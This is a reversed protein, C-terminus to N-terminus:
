VRRFRRVALPVAVLLLGLSWALAYLASRGPNGTGEMLERTANVVNTVPQADAFARLWGPMTATSTFTSAAFVLPFVPLFSALQAAEPNAVLMGIYAFIWSFAYGFLLAVGVGAVSPLFGGHFRFGVLLGVLIMLTLTFCSRILDATTRGTLIAGRHMPLSRFRDTIGKSLDDAVGIASSAGGFLSTQVIIGPILYDVYDSYGPVRISGGFVYRFLLVFMVPQIAAFVILQPTRVIHLLNRRTLVRTDSLFGRLALGDFVGTRTRDVTHNM